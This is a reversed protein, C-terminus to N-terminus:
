VAMSYVASGLYCVIIERKPM